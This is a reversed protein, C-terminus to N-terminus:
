SRGGILASMVNMLGAAFGSRGDPTVKILGMVRGFSLIM